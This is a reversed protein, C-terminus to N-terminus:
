VPHNINMPTCHKLTKNLTTINKNGRQIGETITQMLVDGSKKLAIKIISNYKSSKDNQM